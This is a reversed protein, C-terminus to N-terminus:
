CEGSRLVTYRANTLDVPRHDKYWTITPEPTGRADCVLLATHDIEVAKTKPETRFYPFGAPISSPDDSLVELKASARITDGAANEVVCEYVAEDRQYKVPEIRLICGGPVQVVILRANGSIRRNNRRWQIKPEPSGTARCTFSAVRNSMVRQDRPREEFQPPHTNFEIFPFVKEPLSLTDDEGGGPDGEATSSSNTADATAAAAGYLTPLHGHLPM